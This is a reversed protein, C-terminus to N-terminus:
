NKSAGTSPNTTVQQGPQSAEPKTTEPKTAEPKTTEPKTAQPKTADPAVTTTNSGTPEEQSGSCATMAGVCVVLALAVALINTLKKM